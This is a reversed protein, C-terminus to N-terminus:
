KGEKVEEFYLDFFSETRKRFTGINRNPILSHYFEEVTEVSIDHKDALDIMWQKTPGRGLKAM